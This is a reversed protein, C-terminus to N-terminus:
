FMMRVMDNGHPKPFLLEGKEDGELGQRGWWVGEQKSFELWDMEVEPGKCM